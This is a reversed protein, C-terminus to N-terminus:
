KNAPRKMILGALFAFLGAILGATIAVFISILIIAGKPSIGSPLSSLEEYAAKNTMMYHDFMLLHVMTILVTNFVGVLFGHAFHHSDTQKAIVIAYVVYLLLWIWTEVGSIDAFVSALGIVIGALSLKLILGWNM